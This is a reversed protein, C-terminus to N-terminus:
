VNATDESSMTLELSDISSMPLDLSDITKDIIDYRKSNLVDMLALWPDLKDNMIMKYNNASFGSILKCNGRIEPFVTSRNTLNWWILCPMEYGAEAYERRITEALTEYNRGYYGDFQMDSVILINKPLDESKM